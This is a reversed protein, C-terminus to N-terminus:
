PAAPGSDRGPPLAKPDPKNKAAEQAELLEQEANWERTLLNVKKILVWSGLLILFIVLGAMIHRKELDLEFVSLAEELQTTMTEGQLLTKDAGVTLERRIMDEVAGVHTWAEGLIVNFDDVNRGNERAEEIRLKLAALSAGLDAFRKAVPPSLTKDEALRVLSMLYAILNEREEEPLNFRPMTSGPFTSKPNALHRRHWDADRGKVEGEFTLDPGLSGGTGRVSHCAKCGRKAYVQQGAALDPGKLVPAVGTVRSMMYAAIHAAEQEDQVVAPMRTGPLVGAPDMVYRIHWAMDHEPHNGAGSLDPGVDGGEGDVAHCLPCGRSQYLAEGDVSNGTLGEANSVVKAPTKPATEAVPEAQVAPQVVVKAATPASAAKDAAAPVPEAEAVASGDLSMLYDALHGAEAEDAVLQPMFSGEVVAAPDMLHRVQWDHDHGPVTGAATLEPGVPSGEGAIVHCNACGKDDYLDAGTGV